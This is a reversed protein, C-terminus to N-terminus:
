ETNRWQQNSLRLHALTHTWPTEEDDDDQGLIYVVPADTM